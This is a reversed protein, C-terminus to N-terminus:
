IGPYINQNLRLLHAGSSVLDMIYINKEMDVAKYGNKERRKTPRIKNEGEFTYKIHFDNSPFLTLQCTHLTNMRM